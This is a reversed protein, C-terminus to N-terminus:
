DTLVNRRSIHRCFSASILCALERKLCRMPWHSIKKHRSVFPNTLCLNSKNRSVRTFNQFILHSTKYFCIFKLTTQNRGVSVKKGSLFDYHNAKNEECQNWGTQPVLLCFSAQSTAAMDGNKAHLIRKILNCGLLNWFARSSLFVTLLAPASPRCYFYSTACTFRPGGPLLCSLAVQFQVETDCM